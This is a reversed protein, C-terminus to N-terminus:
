VWYRLSLFLVSNYAAHCLIPVWLSGTRRVLWAFFLGVLFVEALGTASYTFHLAAWAASILAAAPWFRISAALPALLFGRFLAEEWMPAGIGVAVFALWPQPGRALELFQRYDSMYAQPAITYTAFNIIALLPVMVLIAYVYTRAGGKPPELGLATVPRMRYCSALAFTLLALVAQSLVTLALGREQFVRAIADPDPAPVARGVGHHRRTALMMGVAVIPALQGAIVIALAGLVALLPPWRSAEREADPGLIFARFTLRSM